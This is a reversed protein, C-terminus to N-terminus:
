LEIGEFFDNIERNFIKSLAILEQVRINAIGCEIQSYIGRSIDVGLLQMKAVTQEQTLHNEKRIRRINGGINFKGNDQRIRM